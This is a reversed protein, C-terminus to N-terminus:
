ATRRVARNCEELYRANAYSRAEARSLALTRRAFRYWDSRTTLRM